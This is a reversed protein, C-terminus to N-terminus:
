FNESIAEACEGTKAKIDLPAGQPSICTITVLQDRTIGVVRLVRMPNPNYTLEIVALQHEGIWEYHGSAQAQSLREQQPTNNADYRQQLSQEAGQQYEDVLHQLYGQDFSSQTLGDAAQRSIKVNSPEPPLGCGSLLLCITFICLYNNM